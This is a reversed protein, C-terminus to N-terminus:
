GGNSASGGGMYQRSISIGAALLTWVVVVIFGITIINPVNVSIYVPEAM